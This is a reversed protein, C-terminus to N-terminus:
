IAVSVPTNRSHEHFRVLVDCHAGLANDPRQVKGIIFFQASAGDGALTGINLEYQSNPHTSTASLKASSVADACDGVMAQTFDTGTVTQCRFVTTPDDWVDLDGATGNAHYSAAVGIVDEPKTGPTNLEVFGDTELMVVDGIRITAASADCSYHGVHAGPEAPLFGYPADANAM